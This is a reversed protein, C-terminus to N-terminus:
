SAVLSNLRQQEAKIDAASVCNCCICASLCTCWSACASGHICDYCIKIGHGFSGLGSCAVWEGSPWECRYGQSNFCTSTSSGRCLSYGSPCGASPCGSCRRTPGCNATCADAWAPSQGIALESIGIAGGVLATRLANRRTIRRTVQEAASAIRTDFSEGLKKWAMGKVEHNM